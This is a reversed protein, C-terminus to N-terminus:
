SGTCATSNCDLSNEKPLCCHRFFRSVGEQALMFTGLVDGAWFYVCSFIILILILSSILIGTPERGDAFVGVSNKYFSM